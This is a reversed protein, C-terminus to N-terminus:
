GGHSELQKKEEAMKQKRKKVWQDSATPFHGSTGELRFRIPSQVKAALAGCSLCPEHTSKNDALHESVDGCEPCMFDNLVKM